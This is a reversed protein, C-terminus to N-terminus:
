KQRSEPEEAGTGGRLMEVVGLVVILVAPFDFVVTKFRQSPVLVFAQLAAMGAVVWLFVCWERHLRKNWLLISVLLSVVLLAALLSDRAHRFSFGFVHLAKAAGYSVMKLPRNIWIGLATRRFIRNKTATSVGVTDRAVASVLGPDALGLTAASAGPMGVAESSGSTTDVKSTVGTGQYLEYGSSTTLPIFARNKVSLWITWPLLLVVVLALPGVITVGKGGGGRRYEMVAAFPVFLLALKWDLYVLVALVVMMLPHMRSQIRHSRALQYCLLAYFFLTLTEVSLIPSFYYFPIWVAFLVSGLLAWGQSKLLTCLTLFAFPVILSALFVQVFRAVLLPQPFPGVFWSLYVPYGPMRRGDGFAGTFGGDGALTVARDVNRVADTFTPAHPNLIQNDLGQDFLLIQAWFVVATLVLALVVYRHNRWM